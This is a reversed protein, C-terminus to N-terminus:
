EVSKVKLTISDKGIIEVMEGVAIDVDAEADWNTGHFEIKGKKNKGIEKVVTARHGIFDDVDEAAVNKQKEFGKFVKAVQKRLALLLVVSSIIFIFLQLNISMGPIILCLIAVIWAGFGFFAIILGSMIFESLLMALGLIFWIIEPSFFEKLAEMM